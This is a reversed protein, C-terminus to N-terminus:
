DPLPGHGSYFRTAGLRRLEAWSKLITHRNTEDAMEAPTLDGIFAAGNDLVLSVSDDSHGPTHIIEGSIGLRKLFARSEGITLQMNDDLRIPVYPPNAKAYKQMLPISEIQPELVILRPGEAKVQQAIGAHDPHYHTVLLYQIEQLAIGVRRLNALLKPLTGPLGVDILLRVHQVKHGKGGAMKEELVYYHTSDYGADVINM